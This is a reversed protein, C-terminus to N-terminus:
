DVMTMFHTIHLATLNFNSNFQLYKV